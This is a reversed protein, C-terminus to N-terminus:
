FEKCKELLTESYNVENSDMLLSGKILELCLYLLMKGNRFLSGAISVVRDRVVVSVVNGIKM